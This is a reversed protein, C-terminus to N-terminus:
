IFYADFGYSVAIRNALVIYDLIEQETENCPKERMLALGNELAFLIAHQAKDKREENLRQAM